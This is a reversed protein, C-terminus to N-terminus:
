GHWAGGHDVQFWEEAVPLNGSKAAASIITTYSVVQALAGTAVGSSIQSSFFCSLGSCGTSSQLRGDTPVMRLPDKWNMGTGVVKLHQVSQGLLNREFISSAGIALQLDGDRSAAAMM